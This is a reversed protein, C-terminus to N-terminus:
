LESVTVQILGMDLPALKKFAAASLDIERHLRKAPGRDTCTVRVSKQGHTVILVTGFPYHWSACTMKEPIFPKGNAMIRGACEAGYYSAIGTRIIKAPPSVYAASSVAVGGLLICALFITIIFASTFIM